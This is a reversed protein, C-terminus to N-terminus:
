EWELDKLEEILALEADEESMEDISEEVDESQKVGDTFETAFKKALARINPQEYILTLPISLQGLFRNELANRFEVALLSDFGLDLFGRDPDPLEEIELTEQVFLQLEKILFDERDSILDLKKLQGTWSEHQAVVGRTPQNIRQFAIRPARKVALGLIEGIINQEEDHLYLDFRHVEQSGQTRESRCVFQDPVKKFLQIRSYGIPIFLEDTSDSEEEFLFAGTVCNCLDLLLPHVPEECTQATLEGSICLNAVALEHGIKLSKLCSQYLLGCHLGLDEFREFLKHPDISRLDKSQPSKGPGSTADNTTSLVGVAHCSWQPVAVSIPTSEFRFRQTSERDGILELKLWYGEEERVVLPELFEVTEVASELGGLQLILAPYTAGPVVIEGYVQHDDLWPQRSPNLEALYQVTGNEFEQRLGVLPKAKLPRQNALASSRDSIWFRKRQFPYTPLDVPKLSLQSYYELLPLENGEEYSQCITVAEDSRDRDKVEENHILPIINAVIEQVNRGKIAVRHLFHDRGTAATKCVAALDVDPHALFWNVYNAALEKLGVKSNASLALIKLQQEDNNNAHRVIDAPEEIVMHANTGTFGFGSLGALLPSESMWTHSGSAVKIPLTEWPIHPNPTTFNLHAPIQHHHISLLIKIVGAVGAASELHGINTKVSGILLPSESLRGEGYVSAAAQVEIPDGLSTGTGHAEVYHVEAPAREAQSLAARIVRQQSPGHPVTLGSSAGDQNVASGKIIGWIREHPQVDSLRKLLVVGCGEGRVYGDADASFTKCRGEPSLMNARCAAIMSDSRLLVNVGGALAADCDGTRLGQIAQHIAVLSSSCATDVAVSPGEFGFTFSVRGSIANLANGTAFYPDISSSRDPWLAGYENAGVGFYVGTRSGRMSSPPIGANELAQWSVELTLRQQPDLTIAERPTIGFFDADFSEIDNVFGGAKTYISGPVDSNKNFIADADWRSKPVETIASEGNSLLNWFEDLSEAGPFRCAMGVVAIPENITTTNAHLSEPQSTKESLGNLYEVMASINPADMALTAPLSLGTRVELKKKLEVSMLSDMGLQFFGKRQEIDSPKKKLIEGVVELVLQDLEKRSFKRTIRRPSTSKNDEYRIGEFFLGSRRSRYIPLFRSWDIDAVVLSSNQQTLAFAGAAVADNPAIPLVGSDALWQRMQTNEALGKGEWPGYNVSVANVGQQRLQYAYADIYSNAAAYHAQHVSGWTAAISSVMIAFDLEELKISQFLYDTGEVKAAAVRDFEETTLQEISCLSGTGAAHIIGRIVSTKSLSQILAEVAKEDTIDASIVDVQCGSARMREIAAIANSTPLRRSILVVRGAGSISLSEAFKLGIAGLGGTILYCGEQTCTWASASPTETRILRPVFLGENGVTIENEPISCTIAEAILHDHEVNTEVQLDITRTFHQPYELGIGRAYSQLMSHQPSIFDSATLETASRTILTWPAFAGASAILKGLECLQQRWVKPDSTSVEVFRLDVVGATRGASTEDAILQQLRQEWDSNNSDVLIPNQGSAKLSSSIREAMEKAGGLLFWSRQSEISLSEDAFPEWSKVYVSKKLFESKQNSGRRTPAKWYRQRQFPYTPLILDRRTKSTSIKQFDPDIGLEYLNGVARLTSSIEKDSQPLTGIWNADPGNWCGESLNLLVLKPGMEVFVRCDNQQLTSITSSWCVTERAHRRWYSSDLSQNFPLVQGTLNCVLARQPPRTPITKTFEEFEDLIPDLLASHFAHSSNLQIAQINQTQFRKCLLTIDELPGSIVIHKGNEAAISVHSFQSIYRQIQQKTTFVALMGGPQSLSQMLEARRTILRFGDLRDFIGAVTAAAFQGVSHGAVFDPELGWSQWLGALAVEVAYIAPQTWRTQNLRDTRNWMTDLLSEGTLSQFEGDFEDLLERFRKWRRYIEKGMGPYQSGQGPFIWACQPRSSESTQHHSIQRSGDVLQQELDRLSNAVFSRRLHFHQRGNNAIDCLQEFSAEPSTEIWQQYRRTLENLAQPSEASLCFLHESDTSTEAANEEETAKAYELVVHCNIGSLGFSSVGAIRKQDIPWDMLKDPIRVPLNEDAIRPNLNKLHLHAPIQSHQLSLIAKILGAIGAAGELHGINTKVSGTILPNEDEKRLASTMARLEIPDGLSTGTGHAEVYSVDAPRIGANRVAQAIVDRQAEAHPVTLGSSAGNHNFASGRIVALIPDGDSAADSLRRLSIIGCGEGRGYGDAAADFTKCRGDPSVAQLRCMLVMMEPSLIVNVGGALARDCDGRRLSECALHVAVLSSSCATDVPLSPGKMGLHYSLRGALFSGAAGTAVHADLDDPDILSHNSYENWMSGIFVGTRNQFQKASWNARECVEWAVELLLRQQPDMREAERPSIGFFDPDFQDIEDLFSGAEVYSKGTEDQSASYWESQDWRDSPIPRVTDRGAKLLEWFQEPTQVGGPFRCAMSVIAIPENQQKAKLSENESRLQQIATLARRLRAEDSM